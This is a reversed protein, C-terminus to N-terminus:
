VNSLDMVLIKADIVAPSVSFSEIAPDVPPPHPLPGYVIGLPAWINSRRVRVIPQCINSICFAEDDRNQLDTLSVETRALVLVMLDTAHILDHSIRRAKISHHDETNRAVRVADCFQM